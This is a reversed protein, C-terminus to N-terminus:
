QFATWFILANDLDVEEIWAGPELTM